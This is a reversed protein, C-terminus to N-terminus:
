WDDYKTDDKKTVTPLPLVPMRTPAPPLIPPRHLMAVSVCPEFQPMTCSPLDFSPVISDTM